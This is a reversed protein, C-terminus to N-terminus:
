EVAVRSGAPSKQVRIRVPLREALESVHSIVGVLRNRDALTEIGQVVVDLTEADLTSFGEDLFLSELRFSERDPAFEALGEALALALALSALFSEGGSLTHVSRQQDANEHDVVYFDDEQAAFSYRGSSLQLLRQTGAAALRRLAQELVFRVFQNAALMKGLEAYLTERRRLDDSQARWLLAQALLEVVRRLREEGVARRKQAEALSRALEGRRAELTEESVGLGALRGALESIRAEAAEIVGRAKQAQEAAAAAEAEAKARRQEAARGQEDLRQREQRCSECLRKATQQAELEAQLGALEPLEGEKQLAALDQRAVELRYRAAQAQQVAEEAAQRAEALTETVEETAAIGRSEPVGELETQLRVMAASYKELAREKQGVLRQADDIEAHGGAKPVKSVVQQCVPCPKGKVLHRRLEDASRLQRVHELAEQADELAARAERRQRELAKLEKEAAQRRAELRRTCVEARRRSAAAREELPGIAAAKQQRQRALPELRALELYRAEDYGSEVLRRELEEVKNQYEELARAAEAAAQQAQARKAEAEALSTEASQKSWRQERLERAVPEAAKLIELAAELSAQERAVTELESELETRKEESAEAEIQALQQELLARENRSAKARENARKGMDEYVDLHLLDRLIKRREEPKGRLFRDFEGQPLVVSKTFGDYDLGLIREIKERVEGAKNAAGDEGELQVLAGGGRKLSRFIKYRRPGASFELLVELRAAGHSILESVGAGLRPTRGYLAYVVGDILSTKGAGTPGTIAFLDLATFDLAVRERFSTFGELELRIPRM